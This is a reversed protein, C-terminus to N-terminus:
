WRDPYRARAFIQEVVRRKYFGTEPWDALPVGIQSSIDAPEVDALRLAQEFAPRYIDATAGQIARVRLFELAREILDGLDPANHSIGSGVWLAFEGNEM